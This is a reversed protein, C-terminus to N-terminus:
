VQADGKAIRAPELVHDTLQEVIRCFESVLSPDFESRPSLAAIDAVLKHDIDDVGTNANRGVLDCIQELFEGDGVIRAGALVASRPETQGEALLQAPQHAALNDDVAFESFSAAERDPHGQNCAPSLGVHIAGSREHRPDLANCGFGSPFRGMCLIRSTSSLSIFRSMSVRRRCRWPKETEQAQSPAAPTAMAALSIGSRIRISTASPSISPQSAVCNILALGAVDAIGIMASVACASALSRALLTSTPHESKSVLGTSICRSSPLIRARKGQLAPWLATAQGM